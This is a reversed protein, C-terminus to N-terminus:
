RCLKAGVLWTQRNGNKKLQEIVWPIDGKQIEYDPDFSWFCQHYFKKFARRAERVRVMERAQESTLQRRSKKGGRSGISAFYRSMQNEFGTGLFVEL